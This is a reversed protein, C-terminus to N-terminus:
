GRMDKILQADLKVDMTLAHGLRPCVVYKVNGGVRKKDTSLARMLANDDIGAPIATEFGARKILGEVRKIAPLPLAAHKGSIRMAAMLGIAVAEGHLMKGELLTELAHGLTHGLNLKIRDKGTEFEDKEVVSGKFQICTTVLHRVAAADRRLGADMGTELWGLFQPQGLVACKIAESLASRYEREPLTKLLGLDCYVSVPHHFAGILNKGRPHNIATKGGISSDVMALLSTPVHVLRLGRLATASFYGALDGVMGGGLAVVVAKRDLAPENFAMDYMRSLQDPSKSAEGAPVNVIKLPAVQRLEVALADGHAPMVNSDSVFMIATPDLIRLREVLTDALSDGVTVSYPGSPVAIRIETSAM